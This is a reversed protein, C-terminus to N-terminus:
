LVLTESWRQGHLMNIGALEKKSIVSPSNVKDQLKLRKIFTFRCEKRFWRNDSLEITHNHIEKVNRGFINM